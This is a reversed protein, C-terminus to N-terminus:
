PVATFQSFVTCSASSRSHTAINMQYRATAGACCEYSDTTIVHTTVWGSGLGTGLFHHHM